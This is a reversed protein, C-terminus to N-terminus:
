RYSGWGELQLLKSVSFEVEKSVAAGAAERNQYWHSVLMLIAQQIVPAVDGVYHLGTGTDTIDAASGGPVTSLKLTQGSASVVWYSRTDTLGAPLAGGVNWVKVRQGDRFVRGTSTLVDTTANCTFPSLYGAIFRITVPYRYNGSVTPWDQDPALEIAGLQRWPKRVTYISTSLTQQADDEDYYTISSVAQLPPRPLLLEGSWFSKVPVDWTAPGIQRSGNVWEECYSQAREIWSALLDDEATLDSPVRCQKRAQDLTVVSLGPIAVAELEGLLDAVAM